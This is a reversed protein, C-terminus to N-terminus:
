GTSGAAMDRIRAMAPIAVEEVRRQPEDGCVDLILESFGAAAYREALSCVDDLSKAPLLGSRQITAPDRGIALCHEDLIRMSELDADLDGMPSNWVDAHRAAVLLTRKAEAGIWIRPHPEQVPKPESIADVLRYYKGDFDSRAQTWLLKLIECTEDLMEIRDPLGAFPMGLSEVELKAWGTGLAMELRGGSVHDVTAAMKALMGPNRYINGTVLVGVGVRKTAEAMAGLLTWSELISGEPSRGGTLTLLHDDHWVHDFGADDALHWVERRPAIADGASELFLGVRMQSSMQIRGGMTTSARGSQGGPKMVETM